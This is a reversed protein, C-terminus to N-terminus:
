VPNNFIKSINLQSDFMLFHESGFNMAMIGGRSSLIKAPFQANCGFGAPRKDSWKMPCALM